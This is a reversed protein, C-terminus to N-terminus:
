STLMQRMVELEESTVPQWGPLKMDILVEKGLADDGMTILADRLGAAHEALKPSVCIMHFACRCDTEFMVQVMAKGQESLDQYSDRYIIGYPTDGGWVSRVVSLWSDCNVLEGPSIGQAKLEHIAIKTPLLRTITALRAGALVSLDPKPGDPGALLLAEDYTGVPRVLASYGHSDLLQVGDSPNAYVIDSSSFHEHFDAFDLALKFSVNDGLKQALFQVFRYWGESNRVTDHPCVALSFAAM